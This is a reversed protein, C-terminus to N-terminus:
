RHIENTNKPPLPPLVYGRNERSAGYSLVGSTKCTSHANQRRLESVVNGILKQHCKSRNWAWINLKSPNSSFPCIQFNQLGEKNSLSANYVLEKCIKSMSKDMNMSKSFLPVTCRSKPGSHTPLDPVLVQQNWFYSYNSICYNFVGWTTFYLLKLLYSDKLYIDKM